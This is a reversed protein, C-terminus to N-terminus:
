DRGRKLSEKANDREEVPLQSPPGIALVTLEFRAGLLREQVRFHGELFETTAADSLRILYVQGTVRDAKLDPGPILGPVIGGCVIYSDVPLTACGRQDTTRPIGGFREICESQSIPGEEWREGVCALAFDVNVDAAPRGDQRAVQILVPQRVRYIADCGAQHCLGLLPLAIYVWRGLHRNM